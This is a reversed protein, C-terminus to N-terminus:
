TEDDADDTYAQPPTPNAQCAALLALLGAIPILRANMARTGRHKRPHQERRQESPQQRPHGDPQGSELVEGVSRRHDADGAGTRPLAPRGDPLASPVSLRVAPEDPQSLRRRTEAGTRGARTRYEARFGAPRPYLPPRAPEAGARRLRM